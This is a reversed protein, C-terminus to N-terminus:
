TCQGSNVGTISGRVQLLPLSFNVMTQQVGSGTFNASDVYYGWTNSPDATELSMTATSGTGQGSYYYLVTMTSTQSVSVASGTTLSNGSVLFNGFEEQFRGM